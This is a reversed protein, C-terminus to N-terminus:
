IMNLSGLVTNPTKAIIAVTPDVGKGVDCGV